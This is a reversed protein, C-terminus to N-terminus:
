LRTACDNKKFFHDLKVKLEKTELLKQSFHNFMEEDAHDLSQNVRYELYNLNLELDFISILKGRLFYQNLDALAIFLCERHNIEVLFYWGNGVIFKRENTINLIDTQNIQLLDTHEGGPCFCDIQHLFTQVAIFYRDM